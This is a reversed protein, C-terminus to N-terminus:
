PPGERHALTWDEIELAAGVARWPRERATSLENERDSVMWEVESQVDQDTPPWHGYWPAEGPGSYDTWFAGGEQADRTDLHVFVSNPYYGVGADPLAGSLGADAVAERAALVAIRSVKAYRREDGRAELPALALAEAIATDPVVAAVRCSLSSADFHDIARTASRDIADHTLWLGVARWLLVMAVFPLAIYLALSRNPRGLMRRM